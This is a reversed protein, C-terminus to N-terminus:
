LSQDLSQTRIAADLKNANVQFLFFIQQVLEARMDQYLIKEEERSGVINDVDFVYTKTSTLKKAAIIPEGGGDVLEFEIQTSLENEGTRLGSSLTATRSSQIADIINLRLPAKEGAATVRVGIFEFGKKLSERFELGNSTLATIEVLKVSEPLDVNGRLQFGCGGLLYILVSIWVILIRQNSM